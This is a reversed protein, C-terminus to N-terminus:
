PQKAFSLRMEPTVVFGLAEYLPRGDTSAHLSVDCASMLSQGTARAM